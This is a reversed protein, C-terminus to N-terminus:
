EVPRGSFLDRLTHDYEGLVVADVAGAARGLTDEPEATVHQGILVTFSGAREKALAAYSIDSDISPTAAHIAVYRPKEERLLREVDSRSANRACADELRVELGAEELVATAVALYDPHRQVRGRSRADWRASRVFDDVFPPNLLLIDAM